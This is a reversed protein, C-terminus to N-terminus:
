MSLLSGQFTLDGLQQMMVDRKYGVIDSNQNCTNAVKSLTWARPAQNRQAEDM